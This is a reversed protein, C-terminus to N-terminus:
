SSFSSSGCKHTGGLVAYTTVVSQDIYSRVVNTGTVPAINSHGGGRFAVSLAYGANNIDLTSAGAQGNSAVKVSYASCNSGFTTPGGWALAPSVSAAVLGVACAMSALAIGLKRNM